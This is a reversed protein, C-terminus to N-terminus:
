SLLNKAGTTEKASSNYCPEVPSPHKRSQAYSNGSWVSDPNLNKLIKGVLYPNDIRTVKHWFYIFLFIKFFDNQCVIKKEFIKHIKKEIM